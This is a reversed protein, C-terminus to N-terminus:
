APLAQETWSPGTTTPGDATWTLPDLYLQRQTGDANWAHYVLLDYGSHTTLISNHGPGRVHGPITALLQSPGGPPETWPGLPHPATAWAVHYSENLYSGGSYTCYYRDGSRRVSPGELTHWDYTAGYMQRNRQFVQWDATPALVPTAPASLRTMDTLRAVALHTGVRDADLVDRAYYLYWTGDDHFPHPDIAFTEHPTLNVGLDTFPGLPSTAIAVRLQHRHDGHGVSYYLWFRSDAEVIEPAWFDAGLSPDVPEMAGGVPTWHVLDPSRLIPFVRGDATPGTGYALYGDEWALVYPDALYGDYVPNCYTGPETDTHHANRTPLSM